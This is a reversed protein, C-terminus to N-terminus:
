LYKQLARHHEFAKGALANEFCMAQIGPDWPDRWMEGLTDGGGELVHWERMGPDHHKSILVFKTMFLPSGCLLVHLSLWFVSTPAVM